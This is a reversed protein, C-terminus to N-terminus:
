IKELSSSKIWGQIGQTKVVVEDWQNRSDQLIVLHGQTLNASAPFNTGPGSRLEATPSAVVALPLKEQQHRAYLWGGSVALATLCFWLVKGWRRKIIGLCLLLSSMGLCLMVIGKLEDYSLIFFLQHLVQPVGGPVLHEGASQLALSLNHRIDADRPALRFARYYNAVALGTSGMKFYCNGINYYVYPNNPNNKLEDEYLNLATSFKGQTYYQEAEAATQAARGTCALALILVFLLLMKRM